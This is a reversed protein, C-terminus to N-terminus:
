PMAQNIWLISKVPRRVPDGQADLRGYHATNQYVLSASSGGDLNLATEVGLRQLLEILEAFNLGSPQPSAPAAPQESTPPPTQPRQAAMVLVISGDPRIGVASRANSSGSGLADRGATGNSGYDIFAEEYARNQPLLQPGAGIADVLRCGSLVPASHAVIAYRALGACDYRRFESRDLIQELYPALDPNGMLRPNQQPDALKEGNVIGYSTTQGNNPDFFGANIAGIANLPAAQQSVLAPEAAIAVQVPYTQPDSVLLLHVQGQPLDLLQYQPPQSTSPVQTPVASTAASGALTSEVPPQGLGLALALSLALALGLALGMLLKLIQSPRQM